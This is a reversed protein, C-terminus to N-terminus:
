LVGKKDSLNSNDMLKKAKSKSMYLFYIRYASRKVHVIAFNKFDTSKEIINYCRDCLYPGYSFNKDLFYWYHCLMCEKSKNSIHVDIGESYWNKWVRVYKYLGDDLFLQHFYKGDQAFSARTIITALRINVDKDVPFINNSEFKIKMYDKDYEVIDGTNKQLKIKLVKM